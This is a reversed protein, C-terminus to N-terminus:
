PLGSKNDIAVSREFWDKISILKVFFPVVFFNVYPIDVFILYTNILFNNKRHKWIRQLVRHPLCHKILLWKQGKELENPTMNKPKFVCHNGPHYHNWDYDIIRSGKKLQEFLPTSPFPIVMSFEAHLIKVEDLFKLTDKFIKKTDNDFGFMLLSVIGINCQNIKAIAKKYEEVKNFGKKVSNLSEQNISELGIYLCFCGSQKALQLLEPHQAITISCQASWKINLPKLAVFLEKAFNYNITLNDDIFFIYKPKKLKIEEVIKEIPRYRVQHKHFYTIACFSCKNPCGRSAQIPFSTHLNGLKEFKFSDTVPFPLNILDVPTKSYYFPKLKNQKFDQLLKPWVIDGEGVVVSDAYKKAEHPLASVHYGGMVVTKSRKKFEQAMKYAIKVNHTLGTIGVIDVDVDFDMKEFCENVLTVEFDEPTVAFISRISLTTSIQCKEKYFHLKSFNDTPNVLLVKYKRDQMVKIIIDIITM